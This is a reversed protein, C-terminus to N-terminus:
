VHNIMVFEDNDEIDPLDNINNVVKNHSMSKKLNILRHLNNKTFVYKYAIYAMPDYYLYYIKGMFRVYKIYNYYDQVSDM